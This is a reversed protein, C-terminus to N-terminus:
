DTVRKSVKMLFEEKKMPLSADGISALSNIIKGPKKLQNGAGSFITEGENNKDLTSERKDYLDLKVGDPYDEKFMHPFFGDMVDAIFRQCSPDNWKKIKRKNVVIGDAYLTIPVGKQYVLKARQGDKMIKAKDAQIMQNLENVRCVFIDRDFNFQGKSKESAEPPSACASPKPDKEPLPILTKEKQKKNEETLGKKNYDKGVWVLGYDSLFSKMDNIQAMLFDNEEVLDELKNATEDLNSASIAEELASIKKKQKKILSDKKSAEDKLRKATMELRTLRGTMKTLLDDKNAGAASSNDKTQNSCDFHTDIIKRSQLVYYRPAPIM